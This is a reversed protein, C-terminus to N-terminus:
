CFRDFIPGRSLDLLGSFTKDMAVLPTRDKEILALIM